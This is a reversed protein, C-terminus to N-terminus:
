KEYDEESRGYATAETGETESETKAKLIEEAKQIREQAKLRMAKLKPNPSEDVKKQLSRNERRLKSLEKKSEGDQQILEDRKIVLQDIQNKFGRIKDKLVENEEKLERNRTFFGM